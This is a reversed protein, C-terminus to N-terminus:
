VEHRYNGVTSLDPARLTVFLLVYKCIDPQLVKRRIFRDINNLASETSM